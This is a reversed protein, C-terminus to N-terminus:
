EVSAAEQAALAAGFTRSAASRSSTRKAVTSPPPLRGSDLPGLELHELVRNVTALRDDVLEEYTIEFASTRTTSGPAGSRTADTAYRVLNAMGAVVELEAQRREEGALLSWQQTVAARWWSIGQRVKDQRRLWVYRLGPFSQDLVDVDTAAWRDGEPSAVGAPVAPFDNWMLKM